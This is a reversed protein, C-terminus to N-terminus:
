KGNRFEEVNFFDAKVFSAMVCAYAPAVEFRQGILDAYWARNFDNDLVLYSENM